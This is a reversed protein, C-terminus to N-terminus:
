KGISPTIWRIGKVPNIVKERGERGRGKGKERKKGKKGRNKTASRTKGREERRRESVCERVCMSRDGM